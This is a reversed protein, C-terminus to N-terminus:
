TKERISAFCVQAVQQTADPKAINKLAARMTMLQQPQELWEGLQATLWKVSFAAQPCLRAGGAKVLFLANATQHDDVAHPFPVLLSPLGVNALESVTMAGARCVVLDAWAYAEAMDEIYAVVRSDTLEVGARQYAQLTAEHHKQGTQHWLILPQPHSWDALLSPFTENFVQAGLSGGVILVRLGAHAPPPVLPEVLGSRLPNGTALAHFKAPFSGEFAECVRTAWRAIWRNAMGPIANQEHVVIPLGLSKAALACPFSIYGGMVMLGAAKQTKLARRAQHLARLITVPARLWGMLGKGRLGRMEIAEFPIDAKAVIAKEMGQPTGLWLIRAGQERMALAVALAPYVHGGTGAASIAWCRAQVKKM